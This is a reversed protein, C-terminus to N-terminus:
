IIGLLKHAKERDGEQDRELYVKAYEVLYYAFDYVWWRRLNLEEAVKLRKEFHDISEQWKKEARLQMGRLADVLSIDEVNKRTHTQLALEYMNDILKKAKEIEGLEIYTQAILVNRAIGTSKNGRKEDDELGKELYERAKVYDGKQLYYRGYHWNQSFTNGLSKSMNLAEKLYQESKNLEGAVQYLWAMYTLDWYLQPMNDAKRDLAISEEELATSKSIDGM